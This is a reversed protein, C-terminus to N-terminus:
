NILESLVHLMLIIFFTLQLVSGSHGTYASYYNKTSEGERRREKLGLHLLISSFCQPCAGSALVGFSNNTEDILFVYDGLSLIYICTLFVWFCTAISTLAIIIFYSESVSSITFPPPKLDRICSWSIRQIIDQSLKPFLPKNQLLATAVEFLAMAFIIYIKFTWVLM